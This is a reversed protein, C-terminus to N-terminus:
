SSLGGLKQLMVCRMGNRHPSHKGQLLWALGLGPKTSIPYEYMTTFRYLVFRAVVVQSSDAFQWLRPRAQFRVWFTEEGRRAVGWWTPTYLGIKAGCMGILSALALGSGVRAADYWRFALSLFSYYSM